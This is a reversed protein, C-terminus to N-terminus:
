SLGFSSRGVQVRSTAVTRGSRTSAKATKGETSPRTACGPEHRVVGVVRSMAPSGSPGIKGFATM